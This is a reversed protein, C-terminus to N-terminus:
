TAPRQKGASASMAGTLAAAFLRLKLESASSSGRSLALMSPPDTAALWEAETM